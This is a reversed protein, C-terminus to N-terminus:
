SVQLASFFNTMTKRIAGGAVAGLVVLFFYCTLLGPVTAPRSCKMRALMACTRVPSIRMWATVSPSIITFTRESAEGCQGDRQGPIYCPLHM